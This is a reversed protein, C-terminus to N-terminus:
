KKPQAAKAKNLVARVRGIAAEQPSPVYDLIAGQNVLTSTLAATDIDQVASGARIAM